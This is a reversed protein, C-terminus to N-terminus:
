DFFKECGFLVREGILGDGILGVSSGGVTGWVAVAYKRTLATLGIPNSAFAFTSYTQQVPYARETGGSAVRGPAVDSNEAISAIWYYLGSIINIDPINVTNWVNRTIAVSATQALLTGPKGENDAYLALKANGGVTHGKVRISKAVGNKIAQEKFYYPYRISACDTCTMDDAGALKEDVM